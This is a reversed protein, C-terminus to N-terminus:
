KRGKLLDSPKSVGHGTPERVGRLLALLADNFDEDQKTQARVEGRQKNGQAKVDHGVVLGFRAAVEELVRKREGEPLGSLTAVILEVYNM